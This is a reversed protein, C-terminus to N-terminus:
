PGTGVCRSKKRKKREKKEWKSSKYFFILKNKWNESLHGKPIRILVSIVRPRSSKSVDNEWVLRNMNEPCDTRRRGFSRSPSM